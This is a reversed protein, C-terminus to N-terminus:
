QVSGSVAITVQFDAFILKFTDYMLITWPNESITYLICSKVNKKKESTSCFSRNYRFSGGAHM